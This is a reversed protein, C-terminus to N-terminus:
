HCVDGSGRKKQSLQMERDAQNRKIVFMGM